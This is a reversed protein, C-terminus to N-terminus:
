GCFAVVGAPGIAAGAHLAQRGLAQLVIPQIARSFTDVVAAHHAEPDPWVRVETSGISFAFTGVGAWEIWSLNRGRFARAFVCGCEDLWDGVTRAAGQTPAAGRSFVLTLM